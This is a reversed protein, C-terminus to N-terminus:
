MEANDSMDCLAKDPVVTNSALGFTYSSSWLQLFLVLVLLILTVLVFVLASAPRTM